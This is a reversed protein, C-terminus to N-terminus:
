EKDKRVLSLVMAEVVDGIRTMHVIREAETRGPYNRFAILIGSLCSFLTHALIRAEKECGLKRFVSEFLDMLRRGIENLQDVAEMDKNGHLAFHTIMRWQATHAIYYALFHTICIKVCKEGPDVQEKDAQDLGGMGAQHIRSQLDEIFNCSDMYAIKAYLEEQSKFYTYISSKAIGAATAIEAMSAKDYTKQGFVERAADIIIQQRLKREKAKLKSLTNNKNM